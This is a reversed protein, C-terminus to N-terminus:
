TRSAQKSYGEKVQQLMIIDTRPWKKWRFCWNQDKLIAERTSKGAQYPDRVVAEFVSNVSFHVLLLGENKSLKFAVSPYYKSAFEFTANVRAVMTHDLHQMETM